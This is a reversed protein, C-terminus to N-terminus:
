RLKLMSGKIKNKKNEVADEYTKDMYFVKKDPQYKILTVPIETLEGYPTIKEKKLDVDFAFIPIKFDLGQARKTNIWITKSKLNEMSVEVMYDREAELELTFKGGGNTITKHVLEGGEFVEIAVGKITQGYSHVQGKFTFTQDQSFGSFNCVLFLAVLHVILKM